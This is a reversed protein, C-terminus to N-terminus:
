ISGSTTNLNKFTNFHICQGEINNYIPLENKMTIKLLITKVTNANVDTGNMIIICDNNVAATNRSFHVGM